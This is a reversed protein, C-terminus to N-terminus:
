ACPPLVLSPLATAVIVLVFLVSMWVGLVALFRAREAMADNADAPVVTLAHRGVVVGAIAAVAAVGALAPVVVNGACASAVLAYATELYIFWALPGVLIAFWLLRPRPM